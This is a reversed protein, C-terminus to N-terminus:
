IACIQEYKKIKADKLAQNAKSLTAKTSASNKSYVVM